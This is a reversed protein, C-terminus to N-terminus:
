VSLKKNEQHDNLKVVFRFDVGENIKSYMTLSGGISAIRNKLNFLGLGKQESLTKELDFGIGDDRYQLMMETGADNIQIYANLAKAYKLTNNVCEIVARYLAVEIEMELRRTANSQIVIRVGNAAEVKNAFNQIASTLGHYELIHPSLRYSIEKVSTLTEELIEEAKGVIENRKQISKLKMTWQLYLKITSLLPGIGDHLEKAFHAREKEETQIIAKVMNKKQEQKKETIDHVVGYITKDSHVYHLLIEVFVASGYKTACEIELNKLEDTAPQSTLFKHLEDNHHFLFFNAADMAYFEAMDYAFISTMAPNVYEFCQNKVIFIGDSINETVLKYKQESSILLQETNKRETIDRNGGRIGCFVGNSKFVPQCVHGIWRVEGNAHIVRFELEKGHTVISCENQKHFRFAEFDDPHVIKYQLDPNQLFLESAYGTMTECSPSCYIYKDNEDIWFEWDNTYNAVTRFKEESEMIIAESRKRETLDTNTGTVRIAVGENNRTIFARSLIPVQHGLKHFMNYELEYSSGDNLIAADFAIRVKDQDVDVILTSLLNEDVALEDPLYGLQSWWQDSYYFKNNILDIDWPADNSGKIVLRLLEESKQLDVEAKKRILRQEAEDLARQVASPLRALRDKLIYDTAGRKILEIAKEEGVMGSVCIFPVDPLTSHAISLAAFADFHPLNFDSLIVDYKKNQIANAFENETEVRDISLKFGASSLQDSIIEFDLLSDELSLVSLAKDTTWIENM